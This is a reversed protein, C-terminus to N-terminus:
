GDCEASQHAVPVSLEDVTHGLNLGAVGYHGETQGATDFFEFAKEFLGKHLVNVGCRGTRGAPFGGRTSGAVWALASPWPKLHRRVIKIIERM